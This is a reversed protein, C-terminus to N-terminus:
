VVVKKIINIIKKADQEKINVHTPLNFSFKATKEAVPCSSIKYEMKKLDTGKPAIVERYWDGLIVKQRKAEKLIEAAKESKITFRLCIGGEGIEPLIIGNIGKLENHYFDALERRHKNFVGLKLFQKKAMLAMAIPMLKPFYDPKEGKKEKLLVALSLIKLKQFLVLLIKGLGFFNYLSVILFNMLIPHLIQQGIWFLSPYKLKQYETELNKLYIVSNVMVAGGYVSSIVKDRGFSFYAFDGFTGLLKGNFKAGLCHACDEIVILNNKKAIEM